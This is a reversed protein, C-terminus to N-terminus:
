RCRKQADSAFAFSARSILCIPWASRVVGPYALVALVGPAVYSHVANYALAGIRPGALYAVLTVDRILLLLAFLRWSANLAQYGLVAAVLMALGEFRLLVRPTGTVRTNM